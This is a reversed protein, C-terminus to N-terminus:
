SFVFEDNNTSATDTFGAEGDLEDLTVKDVFIVRGDFTRQGVKCGQCQAFHRIGM